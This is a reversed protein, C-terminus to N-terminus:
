YKRLLDLMKRDLKHGRFEEYEVDARESDLIGFSGRLNWMAWGMNREKWLRLYDELWQISNLDLHNAPEDLLIMDTKTLLLKGLKLRTREGGSLSAVTQGYQAVTFGLGTLVGQLRSRWAYGDEQEFRDTLKAYEESLRAYGEPDVDHMEGMRQEMERLSTCEGQAPVQAGSVRQWVRRELELDKQDM